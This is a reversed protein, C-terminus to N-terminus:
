RSGPASGSHVEPVSASLESLWDIFQSKPQVVVRGMLRDHFFRMGCMPDVPMEFVGTKKTRFAKEFTLEPVSIQRLDLDPVSLNYIFDESRIVFRIDHESPLHLDESTSVDDGTNLIRDPGSYRFQWVFDRGTVEILLPDTFYATARPRVREVRPAPKAPHHVIAAVTPTSLHPKARCMVLAFACSTLTFAVFAALINPRPLRM